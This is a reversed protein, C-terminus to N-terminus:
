VSSLIFELATKKYWGSATEGLLARTTVHCEDSPGRRKAQETGRSCPNPGTDVEIFTPHPKTTM